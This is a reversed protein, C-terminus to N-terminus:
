AGVSVLPHQIRGGTGDALESLRERITQIGPHARGVHELSEALRVRAIGRDGLQPALGDAGWYINYNSGYELRELAGSRLWVTKEVAGDLERRDDDRIFGIVNVNDAFRDGLNTYRVHAHATASDYSPRAFFGVSGRGYQGYSKVLQGTFGFTESFFLNADLGASGQQEGNQTRNAVLFGISSRAFLDRQVRAVAYGATNAGEDVDGYTAM